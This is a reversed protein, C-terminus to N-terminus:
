RAQCANKEQTESPKHSMWTKQPVWFCSRTRLSGNTPQVQTLATLSRAMNM